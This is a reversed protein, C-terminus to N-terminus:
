IIASPLHYSSWYSHSLRILQKKNALDINLHYCLSSTIAWDIVSLAPGWSVSLQWPNNRPHSTSLPSTVKLQDKHVQNRPIGPAGAFQLILCSLGLAGSHSLLLHGARSSSRYGPASVLDWSLLPDLSPPTPSRDPLRLQQVYPTRIHPSRHVKVLRETEVSAEQPVLSYQVSACLTFPWPLWWQETLVPM